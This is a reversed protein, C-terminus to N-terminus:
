RLISRYPSALVKSNCAIISEPVDLGYGRYDVARIRKAARVKVEGGM